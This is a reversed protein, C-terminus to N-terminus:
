FFLSGRVTTGPLKEPPIRLLCIASPYFAFLRWTYPCNASRPPPPLTHLPVHQLSKDHPSWFLHFAMPHFFVIHRSLHPLARFLSALLLLLLLCFIVLHLSLLHLAWPLSTVLLLLMHHLIVVYLPLHNVLRLSLLHLVWPLPTALLALMHHLIVFHLPLHNVLHLSWHHLACPPLTVLHSSFHHLSM